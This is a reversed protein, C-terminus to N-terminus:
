CRRAFIRVNRTFTIKPAAKATQLIQGNATISM